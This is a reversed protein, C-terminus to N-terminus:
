GVPSGFSRLEAYRGLCVRLVCAGNLREGYALFLSQEPTAQAVHTYQAGLLLSSWDGM